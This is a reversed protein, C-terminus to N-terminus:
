GGISHTILIHKYDPNKHKSYLLVSAQDNAWDNLNAAINKINESSSYGIGHYGFTYVTYGLSCFHHAFQYYYSQLVGTASSIIISKFNSREPKFGM